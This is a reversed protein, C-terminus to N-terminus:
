KDIFIHNIYELRNEVDFSSIPNNFIFKIECEFIYKQSYLEKDNLKLIIKPYPESFNITFKNIDNNFDTINLTLIKIINDNDPQKIKIEAISFQLNNIVLNSYKIYPGNSNIFGFKVTHNFSM